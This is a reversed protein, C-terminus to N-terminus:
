SPGRSGEYVSAAILNVVFLGFAGGMLRRRRGLGDVIHASIITGVIGITNLGGALSNQKISSYGAQSLLVSSYATVATIGTWSAM